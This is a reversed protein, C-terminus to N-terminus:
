TKAKVPVTEIRSAVVIKTPINVVTYPSGDPLVYTRRVATILSYYTRLNYTVYNTVTTYTTYISPKSVIYSAIGRSIDVGALKTIVEVSM